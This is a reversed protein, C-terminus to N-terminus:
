RTSRLPTIARECVSLPCQNPPADPALRHNVDSIFAGGSDLRGRM